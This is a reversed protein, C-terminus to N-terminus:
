GFDHRGTGLNVDTRVGSRRKTKLAVCHRATRSLMTGGCATGPRVYCARVRQVCRTFVRANM